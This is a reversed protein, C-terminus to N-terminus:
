MLIIGSSSIVRICFNDHTVMENTPTGYIFISGFKMECKMWLPLKSNSNLGILEYNMNLLDM